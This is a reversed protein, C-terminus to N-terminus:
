VGNNNKLLYVICNYLIITKEKALGLISNCQSCLLGRIQNTKHNHDVSLHRKIEKSSCKCIACKNNQKELLLNYDKITLGFKKLNYKRGYKRIYESTNSLGHKYNPNDKPNKLQHKGACSQCRKKGYRWTNYVIENGCNEICFYHKKM